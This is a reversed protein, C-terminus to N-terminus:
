SLVSNIQRKLDGLSLPKQHGLHSVEKAAVLNSVFAVIELPAGVRVLLSSIALVSDGAGIKDIINTALAPAFGFSDRDYVTLGREGQTLIACSAQKAVMIDRILKEYDPYTKRSQIQLEGSNATFFDFRPYKDFNNFGRNGANAQVNVCLFSSLRAILDLAKSELMGHGYDAVVVVDASQLLKQPLENSIDRISFYNPDFDYTEFLKQKTGKDLYRHKTINPSSTKILVPICDIKQIFGELQADSNGTCTILTLTKVWKQMNSAIALVGGAFVDTEGLHFALLPDKTTKALADVYTYKDIIIEGILAVNLNSIADLYANIEQIEFKEKFESIWSHVAKNFPSLTSNILKSSSSTVGKTFHIKGGYKQVLDAESQINGTFDHEFTKYDSGKFYLDPRVLEIIKDATVHNSIVIYDLVELESLFEMRQDQYFLPRGPGKNVFADATISVILCDVLSKAEKFNVIHGIHVLDFVGHCLGIRLGRSRKDKILTELERGAIYKKAQM